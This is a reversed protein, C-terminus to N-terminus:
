TFCCVSQTGVFGTSAVIWEFVLHEWTGSVAVFHWSVRKTFMQLRHYILEIRAPNNVVWRLFIKPILGHGCSLYLLNLFGNFYISIPIKIKWKPRM